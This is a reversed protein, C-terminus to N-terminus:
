IRPYLPNWKEKIVFIEGKNILEKLMWEKLMKPYENLWLRMFMETMKEEFFPFLCLWTVRLCEAVTFLIDRVDSKKKDIDSFMEWPSTANMYTNLNNLFAFVKDLAWKLDYSDMNAIYDKKLTELEEDIESFKIEPHRKEVSKNDFDWKLETEELKLTLVVVRNVLNGLTNAMKANFMTIAQEESFDWDQGIPFASLLYLVLMDRSYKKSFEVPDIVNGLTKSIKQGNVTFFWTALINKPLEYWASILMAPWFIAHFRIIDKGVIHLNAPWFKEDWNLCVTIYNFLADYWVYTVQTPDFPLPIWFKNSERSISFDELWWKIFETVENARYNPIIFDKNNEYFEELVSQYKSLAFFWNKEKIVQPKTLHDPCCGQENLDSPKKYAECWVCYLWEYVWEYIDWKDFSKQLVEQVLKHHRSETTRIFDTYGIKLWDWVEKHKLAMADAYDMVQMNNEQAKEVVKQSNEDVWTSFKVEFWSIKKYKAIIDAIFSSYSHWIHPIWNSYYIPTTVFFPKKTM